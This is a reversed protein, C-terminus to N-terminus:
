GFGRLGESQGTSPGFRHEGVALRDLMVLSGEREPMGIHGTQVRRDAAEPRPQAVIDARDARELGGGCGGICRRKRLDFSGDRGSLQPAAVEDSSRPVEIRGQVPRDVRREHRPGLDVAADHEPEAVIQRRGERGGPTCEVSGDPGVVRRGDTGGM